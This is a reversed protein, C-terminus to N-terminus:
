AREVNIAGFMDGLALRRFMRQPSGVCARPFTEDVRATLVAEGSGQRLRVQAGDTVGLAQGLDAREHAGDACRCRADEALAPARRALPDAFYIPVDAIRQLGGIAAPLALPVGNLRNDLGGVFGNVQPFSRTV